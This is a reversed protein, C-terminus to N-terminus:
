IKPIYVSLVPVVVTIILYVVVGLLIAVWGKKFINSFMDTFVSIPCIVLTGIIFSIVFWFDAGLKMLFTQWNPRVTKEDYGYMKVAAKNKEWFSTYRKLDAEDREVTLHTDIIKRSNEKMKQAVSEDTNAIEMTTKNQLARIVEESSSEKLKDFAKLGALTPDIVQNEAVVNAVHESVANCIQQTAGVEQVASVNTENINSVEESGNNSVDVHTVTGDPNMTIIPIRNELEM